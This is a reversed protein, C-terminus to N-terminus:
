PHQKKLFGESQKKRIFTRFPREVGLVLLYGLAILILLYILMRLDYSLPLSELALSTIGRVPIQLMYVAFSIEGLLAWLRMSLFKGARGRIMSCSFIMPLFFPAYFSSGFPLGRHVLSRVAAQNEIVFAVATVSLLFIGLATNSSLRWRPDTLVGYAAAVGMLFSGLHALPFYYLLDHSASPFGQYFGSNLLLALTIQTLLWVTFVAAFLLGARPRVKRIASLLPPFLLYFVVLVSMFWAPGNISLPYPPVLAHTFTLHLVLGMFTFEKGVFPNVVLALGIGILYIPLIRVLRNTWYTKPSFGEKGYYALMLSFGSLVFFFTVMQPGASVIRPADGLFDSRTRCHFLVVIVSALFRPLSLLGMDWTKNDM